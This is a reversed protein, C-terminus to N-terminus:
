KVDEREAKIIKNINDGNKANNELKELELEINERTMPVFEFHKWAM